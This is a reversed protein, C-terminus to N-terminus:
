LKLELRFTHWYPENYMALFAYHHLIIEILKSLNLALVTFLPVITTMTFPKFYQVLLLDSTWSAVAPDKVRMQKSLLDSQILANALDLPLIPLLM